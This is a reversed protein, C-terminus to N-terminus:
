CAAVEERPQANRPWGHAEAEGHAQLLALLRKRMILGPRDSAMSQEDRRGVDVPADANVTELIEKDEMVVRTDWDNILDAPCDAETDNRYLWQILQIREDDIPTACTYIVHQVGSPYVLGLRRLFPLHWQNSFRRETTPETSGTIRHSEPPNNITIVMRAEFGYDTETISFHQPKHQDAQGFTGKHVFAFHASDFSNEMLRLAGTRWTEDFQHVRRWGLSEEEPLPLDRLPEDLAVWAYGFREQCHYAPVKAGPPVPQDAAQPIKVCAGSCDYTWGHYGCVIHGGEVFGKSLKATRHCCRDRVAAPTGDATKWLVIDEGLLRFPQPGADLRHMPMVAYWFRRLVPQRTVLM